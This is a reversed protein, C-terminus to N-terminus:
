APQETPEGAVLAATVAKGGIIDVELIGTITEIEAGIEVDAEVTVQAHGLPGVALILAGYQDVNPRIALLAPDSVDWAPLGDIAAPNGKADVFSVTVEVQQSDTLTISMTQNGEVQNYLNFQVNWRIQPCAREM